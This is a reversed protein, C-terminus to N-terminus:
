SLIDTKFKYNFIIESMKHVTKEDKVQSAKEEETIWLIKIGKQINKFLMSM